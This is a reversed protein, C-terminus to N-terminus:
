IDSIDRCSTSLSVYRSLLHPSLLSRLIYLFIIYQMITPIPIISEQCNKINQTLLKLLKSDPHCITSLSIGIKRFDRTVREVVKNASVTSMTSVPYTFPLVHKRVHKCGSVLVNYLSFNYAM